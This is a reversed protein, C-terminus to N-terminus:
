RKWIINIIGPSPDMTGIEGEEDNSFNTYYSLLNSIRNQVSHHYRLHLALNGEKLNIRDVVVSPTNIIDEICKWKELLNLRFKIVYHTGINRADYKKLFIRHQQTEDFSRPFSILMIKGSHEESIGVPIRADVEKSARSIENDQKMTLVLRRDLIKDIDNFHM